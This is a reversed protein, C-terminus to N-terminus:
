WYNKTALTKAYFCTRGNIYNVHFSQLARFRHFSVIQACTGALLIVDMPLCLWPPLQWVDRMRLNIYASKQRWIGCVFKVMVQLAVFRSIDIAPIIYLNLHFELNFYRVELLCWVVEMPLFHYQTYWVM